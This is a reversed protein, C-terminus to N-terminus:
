HSQNVAFFIYTIKGVFFLRSQHYSQKLTADVQRMGYKMIDYGNVKKFAFKTFSKSYIAFGICSLHNSCTM